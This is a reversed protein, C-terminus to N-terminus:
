HVQIKDPEKSRPGPGHKRRSWDNIKNERERLTNETLFKHAEVTQERKEKRGQEEKKRRGM